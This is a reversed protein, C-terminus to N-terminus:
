AEKKRLHPQTFLTNLTSLISRAVSAEVTLAGGFIITVRNAATDTPSLVRTDGALNDWSFEKRLREIHAASQQKNQQKRREEALGILRALQFGIIKYILDVPWVQNPRRRQMMHNGVLSVVSVSRGTITFELDIVHGDICFCWGRRNVDASV